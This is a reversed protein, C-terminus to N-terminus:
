LDGTSTRAAPDDQRARGHARRRGPRFVAADRYFAPDANPAWWGPIGLVPLPAFASPRLDAASLAPALGADLAARGAPDAPSADGPDAHVIWAHGCVAKYPARLKDLLAHGFVAVGVQDAFRARGSVFLAPWDFGRLAQVRRADRTVVLLANEDFLTAADRLGGRVGRVGERAIVEAQLRNLRAKTRPLALWVLANFLDHWAGDGACRTPVEGTAWIHAEYADTAVSCADVFRVARGNENHLGRARALADLRARCADFRGASADERVPELEPRVLDFWPATWDVAALPTEQAAVAPHTQPAAVAAAARALGGARAEM